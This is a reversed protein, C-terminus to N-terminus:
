MKNSDPEWTLINKLHDREKNRDKIKDIAKTDIIRLAWNKFRDTSNLRKDM